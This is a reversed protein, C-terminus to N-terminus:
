SPGEYLLVYDSQYSPFEAPAVLLLSFYAQLLWVCPQPSVCSVSSVLRAACFLQCHAKFFISEIVKPASSEITTTCSQTYRRM